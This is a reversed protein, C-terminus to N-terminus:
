LPEHIRVLEERALLNVAERLEASKLLRCLSAVEVVGLLSHKVPVQWAERLLPIESFERCLLIHGVVL